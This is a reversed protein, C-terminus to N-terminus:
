GQSLESVDSEVEDESDSSDIAQAAFIQISWLANGDRDFFTGVILWAWFPPDYSIRLHQGIILKVAPAPLQNTEV